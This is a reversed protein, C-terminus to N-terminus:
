SGSAILKNLEKEFRKYNRRNKGWDFIQPYFACISKFELETKGENERIKVEIIESWSHMSFGARAHVINREKGRRVKSFKAKELARIIYILSTNYDLNVIKKTIYKSTLADPNNTIKKYLFIGAFLLFPIVLYLFSQITQTM